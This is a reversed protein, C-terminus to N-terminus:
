QGGAAVQPSRAQGWDARCSAVIYVVSSGLVKRKIAKEESRGSGSMLACRASFSLRRARKKASLAHVPGFFYGDDYPGLSAQMPATHMCFVHEAACSEASAAGFTM